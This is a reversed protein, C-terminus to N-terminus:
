QKTAIKQDIHLPNFFHLASIPQNAQAQVFKNLSLNHHHFVLFNVKSKAVVKM